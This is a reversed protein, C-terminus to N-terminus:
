SNLRMFRRIGDDDDFTITISRDFDRVVDLCRDGLYPLLAIRVGLTSRDDLLEGIFRQLTEWVKCQSATASEGLVLYAETPAVYSSRWHPDTVYKWDEVKAKFM